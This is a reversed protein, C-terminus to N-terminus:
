LPLLAKIKPRIFSGVPKRVSAQSPPGIDRNRLGALGTGFIQDQDRSVAPWRRTVPGTRFIACGVALRHKADGIRAVVADELHMRIEVFIEGAGMTFTDAGVNFYHRRRSEGVPRPLIALAPEQALESHSRVLDAEVCKITHQFEQGVVAINPDAKGVPRDPCPSSYSDQAAQ